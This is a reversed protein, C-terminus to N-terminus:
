VFPWGHLPATRSQKRWTGKRIANILDVFEDVRRIVATEVGCRRRDEILAKQALSLVGGPRKFEIPVYHGATSLLADPAGITTGSGRAKRQGVVELVCGMAAAVDACAAVLAKESAPDTM